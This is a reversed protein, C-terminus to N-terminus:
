KIMKKKAEEILMPCALFVQQTMDIYLKIQIMENGAAADMAWMYQTIKDIRDQDFTCTVPDAQAQGAALLMALTVMLKRM